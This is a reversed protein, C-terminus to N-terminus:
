DRLDRAVQAGKATVKYTVLGDGSDESVEILEHDLLEMLALSWRAVSRNDGPVVFQRGNTEIQVSPEPEWEIHKSTM